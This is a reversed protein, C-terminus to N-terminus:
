NNVKTIGFAFRGSPMTQTLLSWTGNELHGDKVDFKQVTANVEGVAANGTVGGFYYLFDGYCESGAYMRNTFSDVGDGIVRYGYPTGGNVNPIFAAYMRKYTTLVMYIAPLPRNNTTNNYYSGGITFLITLNTGDDYDKHYLSATVGITYWLGSLTVQQNSVANLYGGNTRWTGSSVGAFYYVEGNYSEAVLGARTSNLNRLVNGDQTWSDYEPNYIYNTAQAGNTANHAGGSGGTTSGGLCYIKNDVVVTRLACRASPMDTASSWTLSSVDLVDVSAECNSASDYGGFVYIKGDVSAVDCFVRPHPLTTINSTFTETVPDFMDVSSALNGEPDDYDSAGGIIFFSRNRVDDTSETVNKLAFSGSGKAGSKNETFISYYYTTDPTLDSDTYREYTGNYLQTDSSDDISDPFKSTSRLLYVKSFNSDSPNHWTLVCERNNKGTSAIFDFVIESYQAVTTATTNTTTTSTSTTTVVTNFSKYKDEAVKFVDGCGVIFLVLLLITTIFILNKKIM